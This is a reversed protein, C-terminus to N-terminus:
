INQYILIRNIFFILNQLFGVLFLPISFICENKINMVYIMVCSQQTNPEHVPCIVPVFHEIYLWEIGGYMNVIINCLCLSLLDDCCETLFVYM